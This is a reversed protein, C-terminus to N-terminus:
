HNNTKIQSLATFRGSHVGCRISPINQGLNYLTEPNSQQSFQLTHILICQLDLFTRGSHTQIFLSDQVHTQITRRAALCSCVQPVKIKKKGEFNGLEGCCCLTIIFFIVQVQVIFCDLSRSIVFVTNRWVEDFVYKHVRDLTM